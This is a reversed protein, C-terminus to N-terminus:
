NTAAPFYCRHRHRPSLEFVPPVERRCLEQAHPCRPHFECGSPRRALSPVEGMLAVYDRRRDPDPKPQAGLLGVTYPHAAHAFIDATPGQEVFRGMYMIATEDSVHRVVALNHTIILYSLGLERQLRTLLNLIEGQVSVDLGATPEDAIILKPLLAVARAVGVRRAQGGSLQHPYRSAFDAPLGVLALLRTAEAALDRRSLGHVIFPETILSRVSRRPSLSSVPDQFMMAVDRRYDRTMGQLAPEKGLFRVHGSHIPVLGIIARGLSSKGSGSEGVLALTTGAKLTFSVDLVADLFRDRRGQLAARVAGMMPYRVRLNEVALLPAEAAAPSPRTVSAAEAM